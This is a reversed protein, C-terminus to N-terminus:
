KRAAKVTIYDHNFDGAIQLANGNIELNYELIEDGRTDLKIKSGVIEYTGTTTNTSNNKYTISWSFDGKFATSPKFELESAAIILGIGEVNDFLFSTVTWKGGIAHTQQAPTDDKDKECSNLSPLVLLLLALATLNIKSLLAKM